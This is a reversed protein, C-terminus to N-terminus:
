QPEALAFDTEGLVLRLPRHPDIRARHEGPTLYDAFLVAGKAGIRYSIPVLSVQQGPVWEWRWTDVRGAYDRLLQGRNRFWVDKSMKLLEDLAKDDYAMVLEVAVPSDHNVEPAIQVQIPLEGGFMSRMRRPMGCAAAFLLASALVVAVLGRNSLPHVGRQSAM